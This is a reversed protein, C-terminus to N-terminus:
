DSISPVRIRRWRAQAFSFLAYAILGLGVIALLIWGHALGHIYDLAERLGPKTAGAPFRSFLLVAFVAFVIGRASLGLISTPHIFRMTDDDAEFYRDYTRSWAKWWHAVAVGLFVFGLFFAAYTSGILQNLMAAFRGTQGGGGFGVHVGVLSLAYLALIVYTMGSILFAARIILGKPDTGHRDADFLAQAFRWVAYCLLGFIIMWVLVSGLTQSLLTELAGKTGKKAAAGFASLLAFLGVIAYVVGRASYGVRATIKLWRGSVHDIRDSDFRSSVRTLQNPMLKM